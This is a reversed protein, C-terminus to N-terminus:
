SMQAYKLFVERMRLLRDIFFDFVDTWKEKNDFDINPLIEEIVSAKKDPNERWEYTVGMEKEIEAKHAFLNHYTETTEDFYVEVKAQKKQRLQM